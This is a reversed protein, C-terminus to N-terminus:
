RYSCYGLTSGIQDSYRHLYFAEGLSTAAVEGEGKPDPIMSILAVVVIGIVITAIYFILEKQKSIIRWLYYIM